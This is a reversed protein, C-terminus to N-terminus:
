RDCNGGEHEISTFGTYTGRGCRHCKGNWKNSDAVPKRSTKRGQVHLVILSDVAVLHIPVQNNMPEMGHGLVDDASVSTVLYGHGDNLEDSVGRIYEAGIIVDGVVLDSAYKTEYERGKRDVGTMAGTGGTLPVGNWTVLVKNPDFKKTVPV